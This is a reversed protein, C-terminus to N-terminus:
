LGIDDEAVVEVWKTRTQGRHGTLYIYIGAAADEVADRRSHQEVAALIAVADGHAVEVAVRLSINDQAVGVVKQTPSPMEALHVHVRAAAIEGGDRRGRDRAAAARGEAHLEAVEVAVALEIQQDGIIQSLGLHKEVITPA